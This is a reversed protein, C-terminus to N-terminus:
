RCIRGSWASALRWPFDGDALGPDAGEAVLQAQVSRFRFRTRRVPVCRWPFVGKLMPYVEHIGVGEDQGQGFAQPQDHGSGEQEQGDGGDMFQAQALFRGPAGFHELDEKPAAPM